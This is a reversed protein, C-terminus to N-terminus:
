EPYVARSPAFKARQEEEKAQLRSILKEDVRRKSLAGRKFLSYYEEESKLPARKGGAGYESSLEKV